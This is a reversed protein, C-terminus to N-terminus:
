SKMLYYETELKQRHNAEEKALKLFIDKLEPESFISAMSTYYRYSSDEKKIAYALLELYNM